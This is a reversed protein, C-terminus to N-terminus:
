DGRLFSLLQEIEMTNIVDDKELWGRRAVAIGLIMNDFENRHHSDTNIALKVGYGKAMRVTLDDLDLRYASSNIELCTNTERAKEMLRERDIQYAARKKLIRGQPHAIIKVYPNEMAKIMRETIEAKGQGFGTHIAAIVLDLQELIQDPYDLSGDSNIDVEIGKLIKIDSYKDQLHEIEGLQQQLTEPSMGHAVRLSQSHDTIAIYQYGRQRATQVLEEISHVGDSFRSHLHLDGKIDQYSISVPLKGAAAAALEGRDERLEPIIYDLKLIRYIDQESKLEVRQEDKFLGYENLKYGSKKALERLRVNHEKSGTFYQLAAPFEAPSVVRLDVQIGQETRVSGKNEGQLTVTEVLPLRTFYNIIGAREKGAVLLDIDGTVEKMRRISGAREIQLVGQYRKLEEILEQSHLLAHQLIILKQYSQYEELSALLKQETKAGFGKLERVQGKELGKKLGEIDEIGLQYFLHHAKKPGLGPVMLLELLGAPLERKIEELTSCYGNELTEKILATIGKGIGPLEKLRNTAVLQHLDQNIATLRRAANYYARVKFRNEGRIELLDALERLITAMEKNSLEVM